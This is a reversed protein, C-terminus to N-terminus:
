SVLLKVSPSFLLSFLLWIPTITYYSWNSQNPKGSSFYKNTYSFLLLLLNLFAYNLSESGIIVSTAGHSLLWAGVYSAARPKIHHNKSYPIPKM